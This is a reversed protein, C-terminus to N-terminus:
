VVLPVVKLRVSDADEVPDSSLRDPEAVINTVGIADFM